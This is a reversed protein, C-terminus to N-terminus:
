TLPQDRMRRLAKRAGSDTATLRLLRPSAAGLFDALTLDPWYVVILDLATSLRIASGRTAWVPPIPRLAYGGELYQLQATSVGRDRGGMLKDADYLSWNRSERADQLKTALRAADRETWEM